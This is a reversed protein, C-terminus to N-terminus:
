QFDEILDNTILERPKGWKERVRSAGSGRNIAANFHEKVKEDRCTDLIDDRLTLEWYLYSIAWGNLTAQWDRVDTYDREELYVTIVSQLLLAANPYYLNDDSYFPPQSSTEPTAFGNDLAYSPAESASLHIYSAPVLITQEVFKTRDPYHFRVTAADFRAFAPKLKAYVREWNLDNKRTAPDITIGYSWNERIFGADSLIKTALGM